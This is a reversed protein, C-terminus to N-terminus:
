FVGGQDKCMNEPWQVPNCKGASSIVVRDIVFGSLSITPPPVEPKEEAERRLQAQIVVENRLREVEVGLVKEKEEAERLWERVGGLAAM